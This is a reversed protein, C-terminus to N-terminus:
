TVTRLYENCVLLCASCISIMPGPVMVRTEDAGLGCFSCEPAPAEASERTLPEDATSCEAIHITVTDGIRLKEYGDVWGTHIDNALGSVRLSVRRQEPEEREFGPRAYHGWSMTVHLGGDEGVGATCLKKDNLLVEYCIM